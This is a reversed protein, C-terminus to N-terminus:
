AEKQGGPRWMLGVITSSATAAGGTEAMREVEATSKDVQDKLTSASAERKEILRKESAEQRSTTRAEMDQLREETAQLHSKHLLDINTSELKLSEM